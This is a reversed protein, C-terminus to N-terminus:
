GQKELSQLHEKIKSKLNEVVKTNVDRSIKNEIKHNRRLETFGLWRLFKNSHPFYSIVRPIHLEPGWDWIMLGSELHEVFIKNQRTIEDRILYVEWDVKMEMEVIM